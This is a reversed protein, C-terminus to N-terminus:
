FIFFKFYLFPHLIIAFPTLSFLLFCIFLYLLSSSSSLPSSTFSFSFSAPFYISYSSFNVFYSFFSSNISSIFNSLVLIFVFLFVFFVFCSFFFFFFLISLDSSQFLSTILEIKNMINRSIKTRFVIRIYNYM